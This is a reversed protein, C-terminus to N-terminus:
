GDLVSLDVESLREPDSLVDIAAIRGDRVTFAMVVQPRGKPAVVAGVAGNVLAWRVFPALRAGQSAQGAVTRAGHLVQTLQPRATGGDSRLVVDPDLLAVLGDFDGGRAAAFFAEVVERQRGLDPEPAPAQGRV